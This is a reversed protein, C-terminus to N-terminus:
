HIVFIVANFYNRIFILANNIANEEVNANRIELLLAAVHVLYPPL